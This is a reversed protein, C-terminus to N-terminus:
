AAVQPLQVRAMVRRRQEAYRTRAGAVAAPSNLPNRPYRVASVRFPALSEIPDAARQTTVTGVGGCTACPARDAFFPRVEGAGDCTRCTKPNPNM